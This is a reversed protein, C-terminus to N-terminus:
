VSHTFSHKRWLVFYNKKYQCSTCMLGAARSKCLAPPQGEPFEHHYLPTGRYSDYGIYAIRRCEIM